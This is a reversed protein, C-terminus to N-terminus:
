NLSPLLGNEQVTSYSQLSFTFNSQLFLKMQFWATNWTKRFQDTKRSRTTTFDNQHSSSNISGSTRGPLSRHTSLEALAWLCWPNQFQSFPTTMHTWFSERQHFSYKLVTTTGNLNWHLSYEPSQKKWIGQNQLSFSFYMEMVM